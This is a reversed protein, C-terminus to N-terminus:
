GPIKSHLPYSLVFRAGGLQSAQVEASGQHWSQVRKVIALGLGAGGKSRTRSGDPRFFPEFIKQRLEPAIGPGDDDVTIMVSNENAVVGIQIQARAYKQANVVINQVAREIFHGDGMIHIDDGSVQIQAANPKTHQLKQALQRCLALVPIEAVSLEPSVSELTAYDLMEQVLNELEQVDNQMGAADINTHEDAMALAFKLRAIPTRFEHAVAGSLERQSQLLGQVQKSLQKLASAINRVNSSPRLQISPLTGDQNLHTVSTELTRIDRWLPWTWFALALGMLIFFIISYLRWSIENVSGFSVQILHDFPAHALYLEPNGAADYLIIFGDQQLQKLQEEPFAIGNFPLTQVTAGSQLALKTTHHEPQQSLLIGLARMSPEQMQQQQPLLVNELVSTLGILAVVVFLYLSAFLKFM